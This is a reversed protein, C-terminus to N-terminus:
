PVLERMLHSIDEEGEPSFREQDGAGGCFTIVVVKRKKSPIGALAGRGAMAIGSPLLRGGLAMAAGTRLFERRSWALQRSLEQPSSRKDAGFWTGRGDRPSFYSIM